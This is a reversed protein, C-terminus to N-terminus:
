PCTAFADTDQIPQFPTNLPNSYTKITGTQTDTVTIEVEVNTLGGAFVWFRDRSACADLVKIVMEVNDSDFFWFYGTDDTLEVATGVGTAGNSRRWDAEIRFRGDNLCMTLDNSVCPGIIQPLTIMVVNSAASSGENNRARVRFYYDGGPALGSINAATTNAPLDGINSYTAGDTSTQIRFLDEDDSNDNWTLQVSSNSTVQAKLNSPAAPVQNGGAPKNAGNLTQVNSSVPDLWDRLRASASGGANWSFSLRGYWDPLNNGCAAFGGHLQGIVRGQPSYLPSGSSGGETTGVDWDEVRLHTGDGPSNSGTYSTTTLAQNEFSIRKEDTNPHHITVASSPDITRRDWGNWFVNWAPNPDASLELLSFDSTAGNARLTTGSVFQNLQGNGNGGSAGGGPTRCTSNEYNFYVVVSQDNATSVDCHNATLFLPRFDQSTNHIMSGTCFFIGNISFVGVSRIQSRWGNGEPCVVDVNCAGSKDAGETVPDPAGFGRYGQQIGTLELHVQDRQAAPVMLEILVDDTRLLPTWLQGQRQDRATFAPLWLRGDTSTITLRADAPLEFREFAFNLSTAGPAHVRFRWQHTGDVLVTWTGHSLPNIQVPNAIAFRGPLGQTARLEDEARLKDLDLAELRVSDVLTPYPGRLSRPNAEEVRLVREDASADSAAAQTAPLLAILLLLSCLLFTPLRNM